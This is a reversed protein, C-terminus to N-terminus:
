PMGIIYSDSLTLQYPTNKLQDAIPKSLSLILGTYNIPVIYRRLLKKCAENLLVESEMFAYYMSRGKLKKGHIFCNIWPPKQRLIPTFGIRIRKM